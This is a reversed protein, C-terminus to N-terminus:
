VTQHHYLPNGGMTLSGPAATGIPLQFLFYESYHHHFADHNRFTIGHHTTVNLASLPELASIIVTTKYGHLPAINISYCQMERERM